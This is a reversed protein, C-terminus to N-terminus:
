NELERLLARLSDPALPASAEILFGDIRLREVWRLQQASEYDGGAASMTAAFPIQVLDLTHGSDLQQSTWVEPAGTERARMSLVPLSELTRVKGGLLEEAAARDVPTWDASTKAGVQEVPVATPPVKAMRRDLSPAAAAEGVVDQAGELRAESGAGAAAAELENAAYSEDAMEEPGDDGVAELEAANRDVRGSPSVSDRVALQRPATRESRVPEELGEREASFRVEEAERLGAVRDFDAASRGPISPGITGRALWGATMAVALSAAWALSRPGTPLRSAAGTRSAADRRRQVEEFPPPAAAAPRAAGLLETAEDRLRGVHTLRAKCDPCGELHSLVSEAVGGEFEELAGDLYAHLQGDSLHSM